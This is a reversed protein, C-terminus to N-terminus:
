GDTIRLILRWENADSEAVAASSRGAAWLVEGSVDTVVPLRARESRPVRQELYLKKLTKTGGHTRIRDGEQRARIQLPFRLTSEPLAIVWRASEGNGDGRGESWDVSYIRGGLRVTGAGIPGTVGLPEDSPPIAAPEVRAVDFELLIRIGGPLQLSRGSPADTIFQLARRTGARTLVAGARRVTSRLLRAALAPDYDRLRGRAVAYGEPTERVIENSAPEIIRVWAEENERASEALAVLSKRAHPFLDREVRPIIDHRIRNRAADLSANTPDTRWRLGVSNAYEELDERWYPLLPRVIGTSSVASMGTLGSVGTGRFIRFLVTEAQDDAHHATLVYRSGVDKATNSLFEYRSERAEDESTPALSLRKSTVPIKWSECLGSVWERDAASGPRMAHDLHGVALRLRAPGFRLLHLLVISDCGGSVAVLLPAATLDLGLSLLHRHFHHPLPNTKSM